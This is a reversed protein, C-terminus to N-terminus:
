FYTKAVCPHSVRDTPPCVADTVNLNDESSIGNINVTSGQDGQGVVYSIDTPTVPAKESCFWITTQNRTCTYLKYLLYAFIVSSVFYCFLTHIAIHQVITKENKNM